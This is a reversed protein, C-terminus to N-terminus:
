RAANLVFTLTFNLIGLSAFLAERPRRVLRSPRPQGQLCWAIIVLYVCATLLVIPANPLHEVVRYRALSVWLLNNCFHLLIPVWLNGTTLYVVHLFIGVPITALAHPPFAHAAGFLVSTWLVGAVLGRRVTLGRGILGRFVLEEGVAPGLALAVVLIPYPVQLLHNGLLGLPTEAVSPIDWLSQWAGLAQRYIEDSLIGLPLVAGLVLLIQQLTPRALKLDTRWAPGMRWRVLPFIALLTALGPVGILVFSRDLDLEILFEILRTWSIHLTGFAAFAILAITAAFALNQLVFYLGVWGLSELLNPGSRSPSSGPSTAAARNQPPDPVLPGSM